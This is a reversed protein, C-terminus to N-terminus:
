LRRSKFLQLLVVPYRAQELSVEPIPKVKESITPVTSGVM